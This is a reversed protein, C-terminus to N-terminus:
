EVNRIILSDENIVVVEIPYGKLLPYLAEDNATCLVVGKVSAPNFQKMLEVSFVIQGMLTLSLRYAKTQVVIIDKGEIEVESWHATITEENPLIVADALRQGQNDSRKVMRFEEILTGGIDQWYARTLPTERKSM